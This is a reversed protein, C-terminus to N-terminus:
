RTIPIKFQPEQNELLYESRRIKIIGDNKYLELLEKKSYNMKRNTYNEARDLDDIEYPLYANFNNHTTFVSDKTVKDIKMNSYYGNSFKLNYVDGVIPTKILEATKDSDKFYAYSSYIGILILIISGTFLEISNKTKESALKLQSNQNLDEYDFKEGCNNCKIFVSKGVPFLPITTLHVYTKYISFHLTNEAKCNSCKENFIVGNKINSDHTGVLIIMKKSTRLNQTVLTSLKKKLVEVESLRVM